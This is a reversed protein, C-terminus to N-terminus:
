ISVVPCPSERIIAYSRSRLRGLIGTGAGRGIVVLDANWDKAVGCVAKPTEGLVIEVEAQSGVSDQAKRIEDEAHKTMQV